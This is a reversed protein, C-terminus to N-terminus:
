SLAQLWAVALLVCLAFLGAGVAVPLAYIDWYRAAKYRLPLADIRAQRRAEIEEPTM